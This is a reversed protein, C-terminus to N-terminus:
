VVAFRENVEKIEDWDTKKELESMQMRSKTTNTYVIFVFFLKWM